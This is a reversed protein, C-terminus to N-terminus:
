TVNYLQLLLPFNYLVFTKLNNLKPHGAQGLKKNELIELIVIPKQHSSIFKPPKKRKTKEKFFVNYNLRNVPCRTKKTM